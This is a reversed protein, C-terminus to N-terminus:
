KGKEVRKRLVRMKGAIEARLKEHRAKSGQLYIKATMGRMNGTVRDVNRILEQLGRIESDTYYAVYELGCETCKFFTKEVVGSADEIENELKVTEFEVEFEKGCGANCTGKLTKM